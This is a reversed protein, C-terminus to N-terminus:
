NIYSCGPTTLTHDVKVSQTFGNANMESVVSDLTGKFKRCDQFILGTNMRAHARVGIEGQVNDLGFQGHTCVVMAPKFVLKEGVPKASGSQM